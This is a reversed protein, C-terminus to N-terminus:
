NRRLTFESTHLVGEPYQGAVRWRHTGRQNARYTLPIVYNGDRATTREQSKSWRDGLWVETWVQIPKGDPLIYRGWANAQAGVESTGASAATPAGIRRLRFENTRLVTGDVVGAVRWRHVGSASAGYTLPIVYNGDRDTTREQSKSWSNGTWVETWVQTPTYVDFTGWVNTAEGVVKVSASSATPRAVREFFFSDTHLVDGSPYEGAVRYEYLGPTSAGYTLPIVYNGTASSQREQSKSWRDGIRVETWVKTPRDVDFKGWANSVEGVTKWGASHGTPVDVIHFTVASSRVTGVSAVLSYQGKQVARTWFDHTGNAATVSQTSIMSGGSTVDVKLTGSCGALTVAAAPQVELPSYEDVTVNITCAAEAQQPAIVGGLGLALGLGALLTAKIKRM